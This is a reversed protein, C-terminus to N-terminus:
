LKEHVSTLFTKINEPTIVVLPQGITDNFKDVLALGPATTQKTYHIGLRVNYSHKDSIDLKLLIVKPALTNKFSETEFVQENLTKLAESSQNNTVFALIPKNQTESQKLAVKYDTLWTSSEQATLQLTFALLLVFLVKKM